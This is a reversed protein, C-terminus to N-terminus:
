TRESILLRLAALLASVRGFSRGVVDVIQTPSMADREHPVAVISYIVPNGLLRCFCSQRYLDEEM